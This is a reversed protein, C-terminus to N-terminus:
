GDSILHIQLHEILSELRKIVSEMHWGDMAPLRRWSAQSGENRGIRSTFRLDQTYGTGCQMRKLLMHYNESRKGEQCTSM